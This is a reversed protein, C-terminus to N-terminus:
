LELVLPATPASQSFADMWCDASGEMGGLMWQRGDDAFGVAIFGIYDQRSKSKKPEVKEKNGPISFFFVLRSSAGWGATLKPTRTASSPLFPHCGRHFCRQSEQNEGHCTLLGKLDERFPVLSAEAQRLLSPTDCERERSHAHRNKYRVPGPLTQLILFHVHNTDM